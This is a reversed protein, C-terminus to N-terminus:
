KSRNLEHWQILVEEFLLQKNIQTDLRQRDSLLLDYLKYLGKLELRQSLEQIQENLDPNYLNAVQAHYFCKILDIVWSTMWFILASAPLKHWAEAIIVPSKLQKAIAMWADFCENRLTLTQDNAYELALLPAGQALSVNRYLDGRQLLPAPPSKNLLIDALWKVAVEKDPNVLALKQCRSIITAPLKAPKETILIISTRETPEELCKLFANAAANNMKDAPNVIVVRQTEFQPKLTLRSILSRIQGIGIGKGPEEPQIRIFDPHTEANVLLCSSCHGCATGNTQPTACLLAVAFQTALQQKGLGKNGTILLAQPIRKQAIYSCLHEWQHQQWPLLRNPVTM